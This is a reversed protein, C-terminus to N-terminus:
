KKELLVLSEKNFFVQANYYREECNDCVLVIEDDYASLNKQIKWV